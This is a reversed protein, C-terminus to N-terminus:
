PINLYKHLQVSIHWKPNINVYERILPLMKEQKGWEPQLYLMCRDSVQEAYTEAWDLDFRNYVIIKLEHAADLVSQVPPKMKKPSICVWDWEGTLEYAGSTELHTRLEKKKLYKCLKTLDYMLPEGGTVVAIRKKNIALGDIMRDIPVVPYPKADWSDMTDCWPCGVDCGALRIFIAQKGQHFGEGQITNFVEMLPLMSGSEISASEKHIPSVLPM